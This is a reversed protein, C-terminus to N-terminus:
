MPKRKLESLQLLEDKEGQAAAKWVAWEEKEQYWLQREKDFNKRLAEIDWLKDLECEMEVAAVQEDRQKVFTVEADGLSKEYTEKAEALQRKKVAVAVQAEALLAQLREM